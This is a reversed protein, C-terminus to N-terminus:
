ALETISNEVSRQYEVPSNKLVENQAQILPIELMQM